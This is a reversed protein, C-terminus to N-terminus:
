LLLNGATQKGFTKWAFAFFAIAIAFVVPPFFAVPARESSCVGSTVWALDAEEALFVDAALAIGAAPFFDEVVEAARASGTLAAFAAGGAV